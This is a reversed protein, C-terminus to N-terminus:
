PGMGARGPHVPHDFYVLSGVGGPVTRSARRRHRPRGYSVIRRRNLNLM